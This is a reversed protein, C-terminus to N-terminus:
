ALCLLTCAQQLSQLHVCLHDACRLQTVSDDAQQTLQRQNNLDAQM